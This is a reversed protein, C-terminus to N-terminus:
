DGKKAKKGDGDKDQDKTKGDGDKDKDGDKAKAEPKPADAKTEAKDDATTANAASNPDIGLVFREIAQAVGDDDNSAVVHKAIAKLKEHANGVALPLGALQLMEIDNINDGIALVNEAQVKLEKILQKLTGGKSVKAPLIETGTALPVMNISGNLQANLQWRLSAISQTGGIDVIILKHIPTEDLINQLPGVAEFPVDNHDTHLQNIRKAAGSNLSRVLIRTGSYVMVFFGRDEAFTVVQRVIESPLTQQHRISRDTNYVAAGQLYIGPTTIGTRKVIEATAIATKGTALVVRVGKDVAAKLAKATRDTMKHQSNELTGDIDVAILQIPLDIPLTMPNSKDKNLM